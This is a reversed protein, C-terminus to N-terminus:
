LAAGPPPPGPRGPRDSVDDEAAAMRALQRIIAIALSPQTRVISELRDAPVVLLTVPELTRATASHPADSWLAVEGLLEGKGLIRLLREGDATRRRVEIRGEHVLYAEQQGADGQRFIVEGRGFTRTEM